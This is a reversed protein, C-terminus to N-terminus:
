SDEKNLRCFSALEGARPTFHDEGEYTSPVDVVSARDAGSPQVYTRRVNKLAARSVSSRLASRSVAKGAQSSVRSFMTTTPPRFLTILYYLYKARPVGFADPPPTHNTM